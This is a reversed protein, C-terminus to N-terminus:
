NSMRAMSAELWSEFVARNPGIHYRKTCHKKCWMELRQNDAVTDLHSEQKSLTLTAVLGADNKEFCPWGTADLMKVDKSIIRRHEAFPLVLQEVGRQYQYMRRHREGVKAHRQNALDFIAEKSFLGPKTQQPSALVKIVGKVFPLWRQDPHFDSVVIVPISGLVTLQKTKEVTINLAQPLM